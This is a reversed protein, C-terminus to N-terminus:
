SIDFPGFHGMGCLFIMHHKKHLPGPL